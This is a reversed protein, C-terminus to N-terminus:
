NDLHLVRNKIEATRGQNFFNTSIYGCVRRAVNMKNQDTNGCNACEWYLSGPEGKILIEGTYGCAQCYDSKSNIEAYMINNYIFEIVQLVAPINNEM